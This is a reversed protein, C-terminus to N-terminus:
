AEWILRVTFAVPGAELRDSNNLAALEGPELAHGNVKTGNLTQLDEVYLAGEVHSLRIHERSVEQHDIIFESNAPSRGLVVGGAYGLATESVHVVHARGANDMGDLVCKFPAPDPALEAAQRAAEAAQEATSARASADHLQSKRKRAFLFWGILVVVVLGLGSYVAIQLQQSFQATETKLSDELATQISDAVTVLREISDQAAEQLSDAQASHLSDTAASEQEATLLAVRAAEAEAESKRAAEQAALRATRESEISDQAAQELAALRVEATKKDQEAREVASLCEEQSVTHPVNLESLFTSIEKGPLASLSGSPNGSNRYPWTDKMPDAVNMAVVNGCENFVPMGLSISTVLANHQLLDLAPNSTRNTPIGQYTSILGVVAEVKIDGAYKLTVVVRGIGAGQESLELSPMGLGTVQVLALNLDSRSEHDLRAVFEAGSDLSLVTIRQSGLLFHANTLVYGDSVVFGSGESILQNDAYSRVKVLSSTVTDIDLQALAPVSSFIVTVIVVSLAARVTIM